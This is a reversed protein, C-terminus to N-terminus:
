EHFRRLSPVLQPLAQDSWWLAMFTARRSVSAGNDLVLWISVGVETTFAAASAYSVEGVPHGDHSVRPSIIRDVGWPTIKSPHGLGM